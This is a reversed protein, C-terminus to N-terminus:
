RRASARTLLTRLEAALAPRAAIIGESSPAGGDYGGVWAGAEAAVLAGAAWDWLNTGKEFYADVRGDAV